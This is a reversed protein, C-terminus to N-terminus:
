YLKQYFAKAMEKPDASLNIAGSVAIGAIGTEMLPEVDALRIGGVAIVPLTIAHKQLERYAAFGLMPYYNLKTETYAFPGYGCYDVHGADQLKLLREVTIASTGLTKDDGIIERIAALDADMNEMHVGQVDVKDVLHYHQTIILTAGWDDCIAAIHNIEDILEEDTKSLCRYQIWNVGAQCAMEVQEIHSRGPMDHTLYHLRSIYKKM